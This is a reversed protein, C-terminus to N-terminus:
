VGHCANKEESISFQRKKTECIVCVYVCICEFKKWKADVNPFYSLM